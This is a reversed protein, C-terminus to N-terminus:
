TTRGRQGSKPVVANASSTLVVSAQCGRPRAAGDGGSRQGPRPESTVNIALAPGAGPHRGGLAGPADTPRFSRRPTSRRMDVGGFQWCRRGPAAAAVTSARAGLDLAAAMAWRRRRATGGAELWAAEAAAACTRPRSVVVHAAAAPRARRRSRAASAAAAASSRGVVTAASSADRAADAAAQGGRAGLVRHPVSGLRPLAVYNRFTRFEKAQEPRRAQPLLAPAADDKSRRAGGAM